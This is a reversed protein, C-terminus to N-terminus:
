PNNSDESNDTDEPDSNQSEDANEDIPTTEFNEQNDLLNQYELDELNLLSQEEQNDFNNDQRPNQSPLSFSYEAKLLELDANDVKGDKNIDAATNLGNQGFAKALEVLDYFDIVGDQNIDEKKFQHLKALETLELEGLNIQEDNILPNMIGSSQIKLGLLLGTEHLIIRMMDTKDPKILVIIKNDDAQEQISLSYTDPGFLETKGYDIITNAEELKNIELNPELGAWNAFAENVTEQLVEDGKVFYDIAFATALIFCSLIILKKM